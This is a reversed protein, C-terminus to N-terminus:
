EYYAVIVMNAGNDVCSIITCIYHYHNFQCSYVVFLKISVFFIGKTQVCGTDLSCM